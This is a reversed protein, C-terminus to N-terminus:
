EVEKPINESLWSIREKMWNKINTIEDSVSITEEAWRTANLNRSYELGKGYEGLFDDLDTAFDEYFDDSIENWLSSYVNKFESYEWLYNTLSGPWSHQASWTENTYYMWDFDWLPGLKLHYTDWDSEDDSLSYLTYYMNSGGPDYAGYIDKALTWAAFSKLDVYSLATENHEYLLDELNQMYAQLRIVADDETSKVSPYKFTYGLPAIQYKTKFYVTDEKWWYADSEFIYGSSSVNCRNYSASVSEMLVYTGKYDGNLILNCFIMRPTWDMQCYESIYTGVYNNLGTAKLLVWETDAYENGLGLVDLANELVIKYPKKDSLASSNGRIRIKAESEQTIRDNWEIQFLGKVYENEVISSGWLDDPSEVGVRKPEEHGITEFTVLPIEKLNGYDLFMRQYTLSEGLSGDWYTGTVTITYLNGSKGGDFSFRSKFPKVVFVEETEDQECSVAIEINKLNLFATDDWSINIKKDASEVYVNELYADKDTFSRYGLFLCFSFCLLFLIGQIKKKRNSITKLSYRM